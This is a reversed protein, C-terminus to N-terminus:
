LLSKDKVSNVRAYFEDIEVKSETQRLSYREEPPMGQKDADNELDFLKCLYREGKKATENIPNVILAEYFKRKAHVLCGCLTINELNKYRVYGDRHLYTGSQEKLFKEPYVSDRGQTYEYLVIPHTNYM